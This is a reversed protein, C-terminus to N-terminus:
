VTRYRVTGPVSNYSRSARLKSSADHLKSYSATQLQYSTTRPEMLNFTFVPGKCYRTFEVLLDLEVTISVRFGIKLKEKSPAEKCKWM